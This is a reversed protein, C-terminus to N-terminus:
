EGHNRPLYARRPEGAQQRLAAIAEGHFAEDAMALATDLRALRQRLEKQERRGEEIEALRLAAAEEADIRRAKGEWIARARRHSFDKSVKPAIFRVAENLAAKVTSYRRPVPYAERIMGSYFVTDSMSSDKDKRSLVKDRGEAM